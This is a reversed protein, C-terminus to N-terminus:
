RILVPRGVAILPSAPDYSVQLAGAGTQLLRDVAVLGDIQVTGPSEVRLRASPAYVAGTRNVPAQLVISRTNGPAAFISLGPYPDDATPLGVEFQGGNELRFRTGGGACPVPYNRCALYITAGNGAVRAGPRVNFGEPGPPRTFDTVVYVGPELTLTGSRVDISGYVGPPLTRDGEIVEATNRLPPAPVLRNPPLLDALPDVAPPGGREPQVLLQPLAGIPTVGGLVRIQPADITGSGLLNLASSSKSNVVIGGGAAEVGGTGALLLADQDAPELVCLVCNNPAAPGAGAAAMAKIANSRAGLVPAFAYQVKVPPTIVRLANSQPPCRLAPPVPPSPPPNPLRWCLVEGNDEKGDFAWNPDDPIVLNDKLLDDIATVAAAQGGVVLQSAGALAASDAATQASTRAAWNLGVDVVLAALGLLLTLSLTVTIAVSGRECGGRGRLM